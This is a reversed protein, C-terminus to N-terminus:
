RVNPIKRHTLLRQYRDNRVAAVAQNYQSLTQRLAANASGLLTSKEFRVTASEEVRVDFGRAPCLGITITKDPSQGSVEIAALEREFDAQDAVAAEASPNQPKDPLKGYAKEVAMRKAKNFGALLGNLARSLESAFSEDSHARSGDAGASVVIDKGFEYSVKISKDPSSTAIRIGGFVQTASM